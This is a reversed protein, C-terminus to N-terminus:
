NVLMLLMFQMLKRLCHLTNEVVEYTAVDSLNSLDSPVLKSKDINVEDVGSRLGASDAYKVFDSTDAGTANKM